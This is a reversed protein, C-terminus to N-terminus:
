RGASAAGAIGAASGWAFAGKDKSGNSGNSTRSGGSRSKTTSSNSNSSRTAM